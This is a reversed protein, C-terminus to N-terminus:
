IYDLISEDDSSFSKHTSDENNLFIVNNLQLILDLIERNKNEKISGFALSKANFDGCIIFNKEDNLKKFINFNLLNKPDPPNYYSIINIDEKLFKIKICVLELDLYDYYSILEFSFKKKILIVVGGAVNRSGKREKNIINYQQFNFNQYATVDNCKTEISRKQQRNETSFSSNVDQLDHNGGGWPDM